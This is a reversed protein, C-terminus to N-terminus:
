ALEAATESKRELDIPALSPRKASRGDGSSRGRVRRVIWPAMHRTMWALEKTVASARPIREAPPLPAWPDEDAELGLAQTMAAAIRAHGATNAHLRDVSWLRADVVGHAELDAILMGHRDAIARVARNFAHVRRKAPRAAPMIRAADPFTMGLVTAGRAAFSGVMHDLDSVVRDFDIRPRLIDNLGGVISVLDPELALAPELQEARIQRMKRGRIGLNAYLLDPRERALRAALRDAFGRYGLGDPTPDELGETTSDGIAVYRSFRRTHQDRAPDQKGPDMRALTGWVAQGATVGTLIADPLSAAARAAADSRAACLEPGALAPARSSM